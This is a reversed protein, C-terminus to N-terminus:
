AAEEFASYFARLIDLVDDEAVGFDEAIFAPSERGRFRDVIDMVRVGERITIPKGSGRYPDAEVIPRPTAPLKVRKAYDDPGYTILKLGGEVVANFVMNDTLLEALQKPGGLDKAHDHLVQGGHLYLRNSALAEEVGLQSDLVALVDRIYAM